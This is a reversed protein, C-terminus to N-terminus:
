IIQGTLAINLMHILEYKREYKGKGPEDDGEGDMSCYYIRFAVLTYGERLKTWYSNFLSYYYLIKNM